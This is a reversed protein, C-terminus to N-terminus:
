VVTGVAREAALKYWLTRGTTSVFGVEVDAFVRHSTHAAKAIVVREGANGAFEVGVVDGATSTIRAILREWRRLKDVNALTARLCSYATLVILGALLALALLKLNAVRQILSVGDM